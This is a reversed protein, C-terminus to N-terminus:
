PRELISTLKGGIATSDFGPPRISVTIITLSLTTLLKCTTTVTIDIIDQLKKKNNRGPAEISKSYARSQSGIKSRAKMM